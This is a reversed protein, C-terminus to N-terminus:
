KGKGDCSTCKGVTYPDYGSLIAELDSSGYYYRVYGTGNCIACKERTTSPSSDRNRGLVGYINEGVNANYALKADTSIYAIVDGKLLIDESITYEQGSADVIIPYVLTSVVHIEYDAYPFNVYEFDITSLQNLMDDTFEGRSLSSAFTPSQILDKVTCFIKGKELSGDVKYYPEHVKFKKLTIKVSIDEVEFFTEYARLQPELFAEIAATVEKETPPPPLPTKGCAALIGCVTIAFLFMIIKKM